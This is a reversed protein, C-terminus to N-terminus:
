NQILISQAYWRVALQQQGHSVAWEGWKKVLASQREWVSPFFLCSLIVAEMYQKHSVYIEIADNYDEMGILITAASHTDGNELLRQVYARGLKQQAVQGAQSGIGSLALLMWDSSTMSESSAAMVDADIDGLWKALLIRNPSRAPHRSMEDRVLDEMDKDWGFVISLMQRRLDDNTCQAHESLHPHKYPM